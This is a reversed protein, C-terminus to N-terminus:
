CCCRAGSCRCRNRRGQGVGGPPTGPAQERLQTPPLLPQSLATDLTHTHTHHTHTYIYIHVCVCVCVCLICPCVFVSVCECMYMCAHMCTVHMDSSLCICTEMYIIYMCVCLPSLSLTPPPSLSLRLCFSVSGSCAIWWLSLDVEWTVLVRDLDRCCKQRNKPWTRVM